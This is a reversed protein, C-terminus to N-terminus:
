PQTINWEIGYIYICVCVCVGGGVDEKHMSEDKKLQKNQVPTYGSLLTTVAEPSGGLSEAVCVRMWEGGLEGGMWSLVYCQVSNWTSCLLTKNTICPNM